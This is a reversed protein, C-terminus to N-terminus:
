SEVTFGWGENRVRDHLDGSVFRGMLAKELFKVPSPEGNYTGDEDKQLCGITVECSQSGNKVPTRLEIAPSVAEDNIAAIVDAVVTGRRNVKEVPVTHSTCFLEHKKSNFTAHCVDLDLKDTANICKEADEVLKNTQEVEEAIFFGGM